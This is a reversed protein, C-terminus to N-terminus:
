TVGIPEVNVSALRNCLHAQGLGTIIWAFDAHPMKIKEPYPLTLHNKGAPLIFVDRRYQNTQNSQGM